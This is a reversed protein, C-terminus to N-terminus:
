DGLEGKPFSDAFSINPFELDKDWSKDLSLGLITSREFLKITGDINGMSYNISLTKLVIM